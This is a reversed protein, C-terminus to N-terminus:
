IPTPLECGSLGQRGTAIARADALIQGALLELKERQIPSLRAVADRLQPYPMGTTRHLLQAVRDDTSAM